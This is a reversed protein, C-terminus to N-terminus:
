CASERLARRTDTGLMVGGMFRCPFSACWGTPSRNTGSPPWPSRVRERAAHPRSIRAPCRLDPPRRLGTRRSPWGPRHARDGAVRPGVVLPRAFLAHANSPVVLLAEVDPWLIPVVPRSPMPPRGPRRRACCATAATPRCAGDTSKSLSTSFEKEPPSRSASRTSHGAPSSTRVRTNSRSTSPPAVQPDHLPARRDRRARHGPGRRRGRRPVRGPRSQGRAGARGGAPGAGGGAAAHRRRRPRPCTRDDRPGSRGAPRCGIGRRAPGPARRRRGGLRDAAHRAIAGIDGRGTHAVLLVSRQEAGTM